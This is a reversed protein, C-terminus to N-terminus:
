GCSVALSTIISDVSMFLINMLFQYESQRLVSVCHAIDVDLSSCCSVLSNYMVSVGIIHVKM